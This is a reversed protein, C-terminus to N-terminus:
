AQFGKFIGVVKEKVWVFRKCLNRSVTRRSRPVERSPEHHGWRRTEREAHDVDTGENRDM